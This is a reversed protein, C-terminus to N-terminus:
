REQNLSNDPEHDMADDESEDLDELNALENLKELIAMDDKSLEHLDGKPADQLWFLHREGSSNFRMQIIRGTQCYPVHTFM